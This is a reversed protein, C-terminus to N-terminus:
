DNDAENKSIKQNLVKRSLNRKRESIKAMQIGKNFKSGSETKTGEYTIKHKYEKAEEVFKIYSKYRSIAIKDMNELVNCSSEHIHLCDSYKCNNLIKIEAFLNQVDKPLIFNFKANSFGPTDVISTNESFKFIECHRTTHVGRQTKSSINRTELHLKGNSLTNIISTKGVGSSGCLISINDQLIEQLQNLGQKLLASTFFVSYGLPKYIKEIEEIKTIDNNLDCKNFCLVPKISHFECLAIYRDLQEYDLDPNKLASVIVAQSINAVKPRTLFNKRPLVSSIFAQKKDQTLSELEVYDGVIVDEAKKKIIERLKCEVIGFQETEVYYFDSFIKFIQGKM